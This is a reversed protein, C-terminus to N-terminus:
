ERWWTKTTGEFPRREIGRWNKNMFRFKRAQNQFNWFGTPCYSCHRAPFIYLITWLMNWSWLLSTKQMLCLSGPELAVVLTMILSKCHVEANIISFVQFAEEVLCLVARRQFHYNVYIFYERVVLWSMESRVRIPALLMPKWVQNATGQVVKTLIVMQMVNLCEVLVESEEIGFGISDAGSM